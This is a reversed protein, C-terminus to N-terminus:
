REAGFQVPRVTYCRTLTLMCRHYASWVQPGIKKVPKRSMKKKPAPAEGEGHRQERARKHTGQADNRSTPAVLHQDSSGAAAGLAVSQASAARLAADGLLPFSWEPWDAMNNPLFEAVAMYANDCFEAVKLPEM